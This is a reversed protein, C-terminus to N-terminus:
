KLRLAALVRDADIGLFQLFHLLRILHQVRPDLCYFDIADMRYHHDRLWKQARGFYTELEDTPIGLRMLCYGAALRVIEDPAVVAPTKDDEEEM